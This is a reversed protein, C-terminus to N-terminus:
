NRNFKICGIKKLFGGVFKNKFLEMKTLAYFKKRLKATIVLADLNSQHNCAWICKSTLLNKKGIVKTPFFLSFPLWFFILITWFLM